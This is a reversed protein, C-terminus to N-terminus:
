LLRCVLDSRSQLESTHEESRADDDHAEGLLLPDALDCVLEPARFTGHLLELEAAQLVQPRPQTVPIVSRVPVSSSSSATSRMIASGCAGKGRMFGRRAASRRRAASSRSRGRSANLARKRASSKDTARPLPSGAAGAGLAPLGRTVSSSMRARSSSSALSGLITACSTRAASASRGAIVIRKKAESLRHVIPTDRKE